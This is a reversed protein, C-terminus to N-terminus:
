DIIRASPEPPQLKFQALAMCARATQEGAQAASEHDVFEASKGILNEGHLVVCAYVKRIPDHVVESVIVHSPFQVRGGTEMFNLDRSEMARSYFVKFGVM